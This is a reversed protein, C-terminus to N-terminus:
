EGDGRNLKGLQHARRWEEKVSQAVIQSMSSEYATALDEMKQRTDPTLRLQFRLYKQVGKQPM